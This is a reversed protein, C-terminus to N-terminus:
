ITHSLGWFTLCADKADWALLLPTTLFVAPQAQSLPTPTHIYTQSHRHTHTHTHQSPPNPTITDQPMRFRALQRGRTGDSGSEAMVPVTAAREYDGRPPPWYIVQELFVPAAQVTASILLAVHGLNLEQFAIVPVISGSLLSRM